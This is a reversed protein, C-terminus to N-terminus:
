LIVEESVEVLPKLTIKSNVSNSILCAKESKELIRGAKEIDNSNTIKLKPELIVESMLFKGDIQELKGKSTCSFNEFELKSNEAIALFTTMFCSSVAATFLHEPSWVGEIGKNFQPPTAVEITQELEPSTLKGLRDNKWEVNVNYYHAEM